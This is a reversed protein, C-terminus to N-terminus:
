GVFRELAARGGGIVPDGHAFLLHEFEREDLLQAVREAIGRKIAEPDDGLLYDPVFGIGDWNILADAFLLVGGELAIHLATEEDCLVGVRLAEVGPALEDGWAFGDVVARGDAFEHLGAQHCRVRCGYREVLEAADRWHHRNTLVIQEPALDALAEVGDPPIMPDILTSGVAHSHVTGDIGAHHATWHRLGEILEDM